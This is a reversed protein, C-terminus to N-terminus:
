SVQDALTKPVIPNFKMMQKHAHQRLYNVIQEAAIGKLLARRVSHRSITSVVLNPFRSYPVHELIFFFNM